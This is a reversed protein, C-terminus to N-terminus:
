GFVERFISDKRSVTNIKIGEETLFKYIRDANALLVAIQLMEHKSHELALDVAKARIEQPTNM